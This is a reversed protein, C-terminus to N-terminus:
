GFHAWQVGFASPLTKAEAPALQPMQLRNAGRVAYAESILHSRLHFYLDVTLIAVAGSRKRQCPQEDLQTQFGITHGDLQILPNNGALFPGVSSELFPIAQLDHM